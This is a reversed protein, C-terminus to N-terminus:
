GKVETTGQMHIPNKVGKRAAHTKRIHQFKKTTEELIYQHSTGSTAKSVLETLNLHLGLAYFCFINHQRLPGGFIPYM